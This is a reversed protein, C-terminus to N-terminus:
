RALSLYSNLQGVEQQSEGMSSALQMVSRLTQWQQRDQESMEVDAKIYVSLQASVRAATQSTQKSGAQDMQNLVSQADDLLRAMIQDGEEQGLLGRQTDIFQKLDAQNAEPTPIDFGAQSLRNLQSDSLIGDQHLRQILKPFQTADFSGGAFFDKAMAEIKQARQARPSLSVTADNASVHESDVKGQATKATSNVAQQQQTALGYQEALAPQNTIQNAVSAIGNM